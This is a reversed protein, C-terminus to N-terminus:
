PEAGAAGARAAAPADPAASPHDVQPLYIADLGITATVMPEDADGARDRDCSLRLSSLRVLRRSREAARVVAIVADFRAEIEVTLPLALAVPGETAGPVAEVPGGTTFTQSKVSSDDVPLSLARILSAADPAEPIIKLDEDVIRRAESLERALQEVQRTKEDMVTNKLTLEEIRDADRSAERYNPGIFLLAAAAAVFVAAASVALMPRNATM